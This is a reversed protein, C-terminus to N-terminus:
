RKQYIENHNSNMAEKDPRDPKSSHCTEEHVSRVRAKIHPHTSYTSKNSKHFTFVEQIPPHVSLIKSAVINQQKGIWDTGWSTNEEKMHDCDIIREDKQLNMVNSNKKNEETAKTRLQQDFRSQNVRRESNAKSFSMTSRRDLEHTTECQRWSNVSQTQETEVTRKVIPNKM